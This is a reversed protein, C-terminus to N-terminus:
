PNVIKQHFAEAVRTFAVDRPHLENAWDRKYAEGAVTNIAAPRADVYRVIASGRVEAPIRAIRDNFRRILDAMVTTNRALDDPQDRLYGKAAFGPQLWPGPLPWGILFPRGDPVPAAYGHILIPIDSRDLRSEAFRQASAILSTLANAIREIFADAITADLPATAGRASRAHNLLMHFERGAIDNGGGSLLIAKVDGQKGARRVKRFEEQFGRLQEGDYAMSEATDGATASSYVAYRIGGPLRGGALAGLVDLGPYSFWSDGEAILYGSPTDALAGIGQDSLDRIVEDANTRGQTFAPPPQQASPRADFMAHLSVALILVVGATGPKTMVSEKEELDGAV